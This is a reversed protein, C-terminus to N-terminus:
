ESQLGDIYVRVFYDPSYEDGNKFLNNFRENNLSKLKLRAVCYAGCTNVNSKDQQIPYTNNIVKQFATLNTLDNNVLPLGRGKRYKNIDKNLEDLKNGLSDYFCLHGKPSRYMVVWHGSKDEYEYLIIAQKYYGLLDDISRYNKVTSYPVLNCKNNMMELMQKGNLKEKIQIRLKNLVEAEEKDENIQHNRETNDMKYHIINRKFSKM